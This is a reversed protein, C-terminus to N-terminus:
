KIPTRKMYSPWFCGTNETVFRSVDGLLQEACAASSMIMSLAQIWWHSDTRNHSHTPLTRFTFDTLTAPLHMKSRVPPLFIEGLYTDSVKDNTQSWLFKFFVTGASIGIFGSHIKHALHGHMSLLLINWFTREILNQSRLLRDWYDGSQQSRYGSM